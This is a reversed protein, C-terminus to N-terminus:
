PIRLNMVTNMFAPYKDRALHISDVDEWGLVKVDM